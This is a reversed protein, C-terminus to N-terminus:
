GRPQRAPGTAIPPRAEERRRAALPDGYGLAWPVLEAVLAARVPRQDGLTHAAERVALEADLGKRALNEDSLVVRCALLEPPGPPPPEASTRREHELWLALAPAEASRLATAVAAHCPGCPCELWREVAQRAARRRGATVPLAFLPDRPPRTFRDALAHAAAVAARACALVGFRCVDSAVTAVDDRRWCPPRPAALNARRLARAAPRHGLTAALELGSAAVRGAQLRALLYEAEAERSGSRRWTRELVRLREDSM